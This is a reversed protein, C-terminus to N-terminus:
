LYGERIFRDNVVMTNRNFSIRYQDLSITVVLGSRGWIEIFLLSIFWGKERVEELNKKQGVDYM